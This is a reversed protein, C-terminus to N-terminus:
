AFNSIHERIFAACLAELNETEYVSYFSSDTDDFPYHEYTRAYEEETEAAFRGLDSVDISHKSVFDSFLAQTKLAGIEKLADALYPATFRSTNSFYQLLGGNQLEMDFRAITYAARQADNLSELAGSDETANGGSDTRVIVAMVLDADSLELLKDATMSEFEKFAGKTAAKFILSALRSILGM